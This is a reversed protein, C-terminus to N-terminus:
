LPIAAAADPLPLEPFIMSRVESMLREVEKDEGSLAYIEHMYKSLGAFSATFGYDTVANMEARIVLPYILQVRKLMDNGCQSEAEQYAASKQLQRLKKLIHLLSTSQKEKKEARKSRKHLIKVRELERKLIRNRAQKAKMLKFRDFDSMKARLASRRRSQAMKTKSWLENINAKEWAAIIAKTKDYHTIKLTMKTLLMNKFNIMQRKLGPGDVLARNGDVVNVIVALKGRERGRAIYIVRGIQVLVDFIGM